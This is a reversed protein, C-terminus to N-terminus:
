QTKEQPRDKPPTDEQRQPVDNFLGCRIGIKYEKPFNVKLMWNFPKVVIEEAMPLLFLYILYNYFLDAGSKSIVGDKTIGTISGDIGLSRTLVDDSLKHYNSLSDMYEKYKLDIPEIKWRVDEGTGDRFSITAHAKGQNDPGSMFKVFKKLEEKFYLTFIHESYDTGIEIDNVKLLESGNDAEKRQANIECYKKLMDRKSECWADPVIIHVKAALSNKIFSNINRPTLNSATIWEKVGKYFKNVGYFADVSDNKFHAVGVRRSRINSLNLRKFTKFKRRIGRTWNGVIVSDFDQYEPDDNFIDLINRSALRARKNEILEMSYIPPQLKLAERVIPDLNRTERLKYKIFFDEYYYFRRICKMALESISSDGNDELSEFWEEIVPNDVWERKPKGEKDKINKYLKLGKGYLITIQKELIRPLFSNDSIMQHIEEPLNNLEGHTLVSAGDVQMLIPGTPTTINPNISLDTMSGSGIQFSMVESGDKVTGVKGLIDVKM